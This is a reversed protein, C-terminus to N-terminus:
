VKEASVAKYIGLNKVITARTSMNKIARDLDIGRFEFDIYFHYEFPKGTIPRSEIKTLNLGEDSIVQLARMLSGPAHPLSLILSCKDADAARELKRKITVFRTFNSRNDEINRRIITLGYLKAAEESAIAALSPDGRTKVQKAAAATDSFPRRELHPLDNFIIKCQELAKPHSYVKSIKSIDSQLGVLHHEVRLHYEAHIALDYQLLLDYNEHVSGALTNELPIVGAEDSGAAVSKFIGEFDDIGSLAVEKGFIAQAALYSFSGPIGRYAVSM